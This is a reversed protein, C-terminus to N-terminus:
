IINSTHCSSVPKPLTPRQHDEGIPPVTQDIIRGRSSSDRSSDLGEKSKVTHLIIVRITYVCPRHSNGGALGGVPGVALDGALGLGEWVRVLEPLRPLEKVLMIWIANSPPTANPKSPPSPVAEAVVAVM